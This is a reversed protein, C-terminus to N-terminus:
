KRVVFRKNINIGNEGKLQLFYVGNEINSIDISFKKDYFLISSKLIIEGLSNLICYNNIEKTLTTLNTSIELRDIAPNPFVKLNEEFTNLEQIGVGDKYVVVTDFKVMGCIDQKVVYTSTQSPSVWIGAATDIAPTTPTITVPLKYWMCAEDIGIDSTRGLYVSTGPICSTDNGAFAPLNLEILSVDDIYLDTAKSPLYTPNIILTNTLNNPKFNGLVMYKENGVATFTGTIAIWNLTDTIIGNQNQVQPNLFTLPYSCHSITDLIGSGFYIGYADIGVVNNNTNVIFFKACYQTNQKLTQKLRNRPYYRSIGGCTSPDCYFTCAIFNNGTKPYQYGGFGLPVTGLLKARLLYSYNSVSDLAGWYKVADSANTTASPLAIEFSPNNVYNIVQAKYLVFTACFFCIFFYNNKKKHFFSSSRLLYNKPSQNM